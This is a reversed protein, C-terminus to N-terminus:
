HRSMIFFLYQTFNPVFLSHFNQHNEFKIKVFFLNCSIQSVRKGQHKFKKCALQLTRENPVNVGLKSLCQTIWQTPEHCPTNPTLLSFISHFIPTTYRFSQSLHMDATAPIFINKWNKSVYKEHYVDFITFLVLFVYMQTLISEYIRTRYNYNMTM